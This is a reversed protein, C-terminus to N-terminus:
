FSPSSPAVYRTYTGPRVYTMYLDAGDSLSFHVWFLVDPCGWFTTVYECIRMWMTCSEAGTKSRVHQTRPEMGAM